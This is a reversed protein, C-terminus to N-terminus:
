TGEGKKPTIYIYHIGWFTQLEQLQNELAEQSELSTLKDMDLRCKDTSREVERSAQWKEDDVGTSSVVPILYSPDESKSDGDIDGNESEDTDDKGPNMKRM